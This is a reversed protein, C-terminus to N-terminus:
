SQGLWSPGTSQSRCSENLVLTEELGRLVQDACVSWPQARWTERIRVERAALEAPQDLLRCILEALSRPDFPDIFYPLDGAIEPISTSNSAICVKGRSLSEAVPLGWGEALSPYVTFLSDRYLTELEADSAQPLHIIRGELWRAARLQTFLDDVLWGKRGAWVLHPCREGLRERLILWTDLLLRHNKRAEITGVCLIFRIHPPLPNPARTSAQLPDGLRIVETPVLPFGRNERYAAITRASYHSITQVLCARKLAWDLWPMFPNPEDPFLHPHTLPILDYVLVAYRAGSQALVQEM